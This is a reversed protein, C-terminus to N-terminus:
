PAWGKGLNVAAWTMGGLRSSNLVSAKTMTLDPPSVYMLSREMKRLIKESEPNFIIGYESCIYRALAFRLYEIYSTDYGQNAGNIFTYPVSVSIDTLDTDLEVNALFLQVMMKLAYDSQPKFYLALNGGGLAREFNWNFPLSSVDDVRPSGYYQRRTTGQMAFRVTGLNFTCSEIGSVYPLYYFEEDPTCDLEIYTYYPVLDTEIQKFDLLGNLLELGDQIQEGTPTQLGRSCIGSLYLARTILQQATYAM